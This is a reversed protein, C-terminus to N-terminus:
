GHMPIRRLEGAKKNEISSKFQNKINQAAIEQTM